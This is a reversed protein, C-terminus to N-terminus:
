KKQLASMAADKAAQKRAKLADDITKDRGLKHEANIATSSQSLSNVFTEQLEETNKPNDKVLGYMMTRMTEQPLIKYTGEGEYIDPCLASLRANFKDLSFSVFSKSVYSLAASFNKLVGRAKMSLPGTHDALQDIPKKGASKVHEAFVSAATTALASAFQFGFNQGDGEAGNNYKEAILAENLKGLRIADEALPIAGMFIEAYFSSLAAAPFYNDKDGSGPNSPQVAEGLISAATSEIERMVDDHRKHDAAIAAMGGHRHIIVRIKDMAADHSRPSPFAPLSGSIPKPIISFLEPYQNIFTSYHADGISDNVHKAMSRAIFAKPTDFVDFMQVRNTLATTRPFIKNGDSNGRNAALGIHVPSAGERMQGGGLASLADDVDKDFTMTVQGKELSFKSATIQKLNMDGASGGLLLDFCANQVQHAATTFDDFFVYGYGGMMSAALKWDPLHGMYETDGIKMKAMLGGVEHKSTSGAITIISFVFTNEDVKGMQIDAQSPESVFKMGTLKAFERCAEKHITTKGHGPLGETFVARIDKADIMEVGYKTKYAAELRAQLGPRSGNFKLFLNEIIQEKVYELSVQKLAVDKKVSPSKTAM